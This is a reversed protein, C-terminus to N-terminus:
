NKLLRWHTIQFDTDFTCHDRHGVSPPQLKIWWTRDDYFGELIEDNFDTIIQVNVPEDNELPPKQDTASVWGENTKLNSENKM